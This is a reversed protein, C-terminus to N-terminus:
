EAGPDRTGTALDVDHGYQDADHGVTYRGVGGLHRAMRSRALAVDGAMLADYIATHARHSEGADRGRVGGPVEEKSAELTFEDQLEMLIETILSIAPNDALDALGFHFMRLAKASAPGGSPGIEAELVRSLRTSVSPDNIRKAVLDICNLELMTRAAVLSAVDVKWYRLYLAASRRVARIDPATVVLGGGPGRRMRATGHHELLRVAERLVGRSVDHEEILSQESGIIQGVPWGLDMIQKEVKAAVQEALKQGPVSDQNDKAV